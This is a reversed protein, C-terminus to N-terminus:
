NIICECCHDERGPGPSNLNITESIVYQPTANITMYIRGVYEGILGLAFLILGGLVSLLVVVSSWGIVINPELIKRIIIFIGYLFGLCAVLSGAITTIRLPKISFATFSNLWLSFLKKITYTTHGEMRRREKMPVNIIHGSTRFFLGSLYPYPGTYRCIEDAVFRKFAMFNGMQLEKPKSILMNAAIENLRSCLNKFLSQEKKGYQAVSIDWGEQLPKLLQPLHDIPCQGDDDLVVVIKGTSAQIGAMIGAHQGFNKAFRIVKVNENEQAIRSLLGYVDDPSNDDVAIIEYGAGDIQSVVDIIEHIVYGVTRESRYCPIVFTIKSLLREGRICM